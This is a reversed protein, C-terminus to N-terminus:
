AKKVLDYLEEETLAKLNLRRKKAWAAGVKKGQALLRDFRLKWLTEREEEQKFVRKYPLLVAEPMSDRVIVVTTDNEAVDAVLRSLKKRVETISLIQQM